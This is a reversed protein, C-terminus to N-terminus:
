RVPQLAAVVGTGSFNRSNRGWSSSCVGGGLTCFGAVYTPHQVILVAEFFFNFFLRLTDAIPASYACTTRARM